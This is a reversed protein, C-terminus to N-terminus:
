RKAKKIRYAGCACCVLGVLSWMALAAPEPVAEPRNLGVILGPDIAGGTLFLGNVFGGDPVGLLTLDIGIGRYQFAQSSANSTLTNSELEALSNPSTGTGTRLTTAPLLVTYDGAAFSATGSGDLLSLAFPDGTQTDTAIEFLVVDVEGAVNRVPQQFNFALGQTNNTSPTANTVPPANIGSTTGGPNALVTSLSFDELLAARAGAGPLPAGDPRVVWTTNTGRFHTVDVNIMQSQNFTGHTTTVSDLVVNNGTTTTMASVLTAAAVHSCLALGAGLAFVTAFMQRISTAQM